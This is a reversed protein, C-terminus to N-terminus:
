NLGYRNKDDRPREYDPSIKWFDCDKSMAEADVSIHRARCYSRIINPDVTDKVFDGSRFLCSECGRELSPKRVPKQVM